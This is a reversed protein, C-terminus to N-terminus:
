SLTASSSTSVTAFDSWDDDQEAVVATATASTATGSFDGWDSDDETAAANAASATTASTATTGSPFSPSLAVPAEPVFGFVVSGPPPPPPLGFAPTAGTSPVSHKRKSKVAVHVKQGDKISLDRLPQSLHLESEESAKHSLEEALAMRDVYRVYDNLANKFDFAVDRERFGCGILTSRSTKPDKIKLVYYRSSDIVADVFATIDGKPKVEIPCEAFFILNEDSTLTTSPDKLRYIVIRFKTDAQFMKLCGTFVPKDLGWDEARHGSATRLPPVKYVFCESVTLITQEFVPEPLDDM